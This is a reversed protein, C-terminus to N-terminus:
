TKRFLVFNATNHIKVNCIIYIFEVLAQPFQSLM